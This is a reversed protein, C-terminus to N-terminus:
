KLLRGDSNLYYANIYENSAMHGDTHLYFWYYGIQRWGTQMAGNYAHLYYWKSGVQKWGTAMDGSWPNLYYWNGKDLLWGTQMVGNKGLYYWKGNIMKWNNEVRNKTDQELYFWQGNFQKWGTVLNLGNLLYTGKDTSNWGEILVLNEPLLQTAVFYDVNAEAYFQVNAGNILVGDPLKIYKGTTAEYKYVAVINREEVGISLSGSGSTKVKSGTYKGKSNTVESVTVKNGNSDTTTSPKGINVIDSDDKSKDDNDSSSKSSSSSSKKSIDEDYELVNRENGKTLEVEFSLNGKKSKTSEDLDWNNISFDVRYKDCIDEIKSSVTSKKLSNKANLKNLYYKVESVAKEFDSKDQETTNDNGGNNSSNNEGSGNGSSNDNNDGNDNNGGNNNGNNDSAGNDTDEALKDIFKDFSVKAKDGLDNFVDVVFQLVGKKDSTANTKHWDNLELTVGDSTTAQLIDQFKANLIDEKSDNTPNYADLYIKIKEAVADVYQNNSKEIDVINKSEEEDSNNGDNNGSNQNDNGGTNGGSESGNNDDTNDKYKYVVQGTVENNKEDTVKANFIIKNDSNNFDRIEIKIRSPLLESIKTLVDNVETGEDFLKPTINQIIALAQEVTLDVNDTGIGNITGSTQKAFDKDLSFSLSDRTNINELKVDVTIHAADNLFNSQTGKITDDDFAIAGTILTDIASSSTNEDFQSSNFASIIQQKVNALSQVVNTNALAAKDLETQQSELRGPTVRAVYVNTTDVSKSLPIELLATRGQKSTGILNNDKDYVNVTDGSDIGRAMLTIEDTLALRSAPIPLSYIQAIARSPYSIQKRQTFSKTSLAVNLSRSRSETLIETDLSATSTATSTDYAAWVSGGQTNLKGVDILCEGNSDVIGDYHPEDNIEDTYIRVSTGPWSNTILVQDNDNSDEAALIVTEEPSHVKAGEQQQKEYMARVIMDKQVNADENSWGIFEYGDIEPAEPAKNLIQEGKNYEVTAIDNYTRDKFTVHFINQKKEEFTISKVASIEDEYGDKFGKVWVTISEENDTDPFPINIYSKDLKPSTVDPESGDITYYYTVGSKKNTIFAKIDSQRNFANNKSFEIIPNQMGGINGSGTDTEKASYTVSTSVVDSNTYGDKTGIMKMTVKTEADTDVYPLPIDGIGDWLYVMGKVDELSNIKDPLTNNSTYKTPDPTSGDITFYYKAGDVIEANATMTPIIVNAITILAIIKKLKM